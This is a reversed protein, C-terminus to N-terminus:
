PGGSQGSIAMVGIREEEAASYVEGTGESEVAVHLRILFEINHTREVRMSGVNSPSAMM